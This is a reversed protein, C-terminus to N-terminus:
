RHIEAPVAYVAGETADDRAGDQRHDTRAPESFDVVCQLFKERGDERKEIKPPMRFSSVRFKRPELELAM